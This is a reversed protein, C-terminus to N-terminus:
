EEVVLLVVDVKCWGSGCLWLLWLCVILLLVLLLVGLLGWLGWEVLCM